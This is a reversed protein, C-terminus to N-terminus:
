SSCVSQVGARLRHHFVNDLWRYDDVHAVFTRIEFLYVLEGICEIWFSSGRDTVRFQNDVWAAWPSFLKGWRPHDEKSVQNAPGIEVRCISTWFKLLGDLSLEPTYDYDERGRKWREGSKLKIFGSSSGITTLEIEDDGYEEDSLQSM